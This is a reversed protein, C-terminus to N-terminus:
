LIYRRGRTKTMLGADLSIDLSQVSYIGDVDGIRIRIPDFLNLPRYAHSITVAELKSREEALYEAAKDNVVQQTDADQMTEVRVIEGRYLTSMPDTVSDNVAIGRLVVDDANECTVIVVNCVDEWEREVEPDDEVISASGPEFVISAYSPTPASKRLVVNGHVDTDAALYGACDLLDNVIELKTYDEPLYSKASRVKHEDDPRYALHLGVGDLISEIHDMPDDGAAISYPQEFRTNDAIKTLAYGTFSVTKGTKNGSFLRFVGLCIEEQEYGNDLFAYIAITDGDSLDDGVYDFSCQWKITETSSGALSGGSISGTLDAVPFLGPYSLKRVILEDRRSLTYDM